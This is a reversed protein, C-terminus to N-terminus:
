QGGWGNGRFIVGIAAIVKEMDQGCECKVEQKDAFGFYIEVAEGCKKCQFQYFPM